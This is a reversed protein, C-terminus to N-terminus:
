LWPIERPEYPIARFVENNEVGQHNAVFHPSVYEWVVEKEPTVQFLRGFVGETILTNGNPLRRAGSIIPSFFNYAPRDSYEWVIEKTQREIEAVSSGPLGGQPKFIGNNFVLINGNPLETPDHQQLVTPAGVRWVIDGTSKQIILVQSIARCSIMLHDDDLIVLTNSHTWEFRGQNSPLVDVDPDLHQHTHWEWIRNGSSDVEIIADSWMEPDGAQTGVGGKVRQALDKPVREIALYVVGGNSTRRADHHQAPDRYEWVIKGDPELEQMIGGRVIAWPPFIRGLHDKPDKGMYFLNGNPQLYGYEGGVLGTEWRHLEIGQKDIIHVTSGFKPSFLTYGSWALNPDCATLGTRM